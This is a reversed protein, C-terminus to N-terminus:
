IHTHDPFSLGDDDEMTPGIEVVTVKKGVKVFQFIGEAKNVVILPPASLRRFVDPRLINRETRVQIIEITDPLM